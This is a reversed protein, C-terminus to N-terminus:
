VVVVTFHYIKLTQNLSKSDKVKFITSKVCCRCRERSSARCAIRTSAEPSSAPAPAVNRRRRLPSPVIPRTSAGGPPRLRSRSCTKKPSSRRTIILITLVHVIRSINGPSTVVEWLRCEAPPATSNAFSIRSPPREQLQAFVARPGLHIQISYIKRIGIVWLSCSSLFQLSPGSRRKRHRLFWLAPVKTAHKM